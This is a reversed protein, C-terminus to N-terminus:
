CLFPCGRLYRNKTFFHQSTCDLDIQGVLLDRIFDVYSIDTRLTIPVDPYDKLWRKTLYALFSIARYDDRHNPEDLLWWSVGSARPNRAPDKYYYKDNFYVMYKTRLWRRERFHEAFQRAM